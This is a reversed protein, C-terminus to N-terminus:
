AEVAPWLSPSCSASRSRRLCAPSPPGKLVALMEMAARTVQQPLWAVTLRAVTIRTIRRSKCVTSAGDDSAMPPAEAGHLVPAGVAGRYENLSRILGIVATVALRLSVQKTYKPHSHGVNDSACCHRSFAYARSGRPQLRRQEFEFTGVQIRDNRAKASLLRLSVAKAGSRLRVV